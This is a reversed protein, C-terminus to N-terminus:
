FSGRNVYKKCLIHLTEKMLLQETISFFFKTLPFIELLLLLSFTFILNINQMWKQIILAVQICLVKITLTLNM